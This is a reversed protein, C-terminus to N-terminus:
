HSSDSHNKLDKLSYKRKSGCPGNMESGGSADNVYATNARSFKPNPCESSPLLYHLPKDLLSSLFEAHRSPTSPSINDGTSTVAMRSLSELYNSLPVKIRLGTGKCSTSSADQSTICTSAAPIPADAHSWRIPATSWCLAPVLIRSGNSADYRLYPNLWFGWSPGLGPRNLSYFPARRKILTPFLLDRFSLKCSLTVWFM